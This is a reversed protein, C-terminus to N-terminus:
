RRSEILQFFPQYVPPQIIIKEGPKTFAMIALSLGTLVGPTVKIWAKDVFFQHRNKMWNIFSSYFEDSFYTYGYVPHDLREKM